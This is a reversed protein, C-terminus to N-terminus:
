DRNHLQSRVRLAQMPSQNQIFHSDYSSSILQRNNGLATARKMVIEQSSAASEM